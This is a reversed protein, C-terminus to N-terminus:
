DRRRKGDGSTSINNLLYEGTRDIFIKYSEESLALVNTFLYNGSYQLDRLTAETEGALLGLYKGMEELNTMDARLADEKETLKSFIGQLKKVDAMIEDLPRSVPERPISVTREEAMADLIENIHGLATRTLGREREIAEKDVPSLEKAEEVHLVGAEQLHKLAADSYDKVTVVRVKLM